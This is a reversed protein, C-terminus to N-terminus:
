FRRKRGKEELKGYYNGYREKRRFPLLPFVETPEELVVDEETEDYDENFISSFEEQLEEVGKKELPKDDSVANTENKKNNIREDKKAM